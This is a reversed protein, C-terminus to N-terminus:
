GGGEEAGWTSTGDGADPNLPEFPVAVECPGKRMAIIRNYEEGRGKRHWLSICRQCPDEKKYNEFTNTSKRYKLTQITKWKRKKNKRYRLLYKGSGPEDPDPVIKVFYQHKGPKGRPRGSGVVAWERKLFDKKGPKKERAM